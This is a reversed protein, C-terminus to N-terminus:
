WRDNELVPIGAIASLTVRVSAKIQTPHQCHIRAAVAHIRSFQPHYLRAPALEGLLMPNMLFGARANGPVLRFNFLSGDELQVELFTQQPRVLFGALRGWWTETVELQMWLPSPPLRFWEDLPVSIEQLPRVAYAAAPKPHRRWLVFGNEIALPAYAALLELLAPGEDLTPFRGDITAHRWLLFEPAQASAFFTANRTQLGPTYASYDQFVPHPHFNLGNLLVVDQDWLMSGISARGVIQQLHPLQVAEARSQLEQELRARFSKPTAIVTCTDDLRAPLGCVTARWHEGFPWALAWALVLATATLPLWRRQEAPALQLLGPLGGAMLFAFVAFVVVHSMGPGPDPRVFGEKWVLFCGAAVVVAGPLRELRSSGPLLSTVLLAALVGLTAAGLMAIVSTPAAGMAPAYGAALQLGSVFFDPLAAVSQRLLLWWAFVATVTAGSLWLLTGLRAARRPRDIVTIGALVLVIFGAYLCFTFKILGLTAFFVGALVLWRRAPPTPSSCRVGFSALAFLYLADFGLGMAPSAGLLPLAGYLLLRIPQQLRRTMRLFELTTVLAFFAAWLLGPWFHTGWYHDATLFGLPGYTFIIERGFDLHERAAFNLVAEWSQATDNRALTAPLKLFCVWVYIGALIRWAVAWRHRPREPAPTM